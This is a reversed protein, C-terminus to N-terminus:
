KEFTLDLRYTYLNRNHLMIESDQFNNESVTEYRQVAPMAEKVFKLM